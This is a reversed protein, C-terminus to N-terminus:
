KLCDALIKLTDLTFGSLKEIGGDIKDWVPDEIVDLFDYGRKTVLKVTFRIIRDDAEAEIFNERICHLLTRYILGVDYKKILEENCYIDKENISFNNNENQKDIYKLLDKFCNNSIRLM